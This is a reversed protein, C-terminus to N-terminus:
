ALTWTISRCQAASARLRAQALDCAAQLRMWHDAENWGIRELALAMEPSLGIRGHLLRSLTTRAVGLQRAMETISPPPPLAADAARAELVDRIMEGPHMPNRMPM